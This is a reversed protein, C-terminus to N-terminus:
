TSTITEVANEKNMTGLMHATAATVEAFTKARTAMNGEENRKKRKREIKERERKRERRRRRRQKRIKIKVPKFPNLNKM